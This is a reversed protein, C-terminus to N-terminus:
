WYVANELFFRVVHDSQPGDFNIAQGWPTHYRDTFYPGYESLYNGEPGLHNYVVDLVVALENEHCTNILTKLGHPGGYASHPAYLHTGDYGWNNKGPFEAVPMLEVATVGLENKLYDLYSGIATFVGSPTFAGTHLEYLILDRLPLGKWAQDTWSFASPSVIASPGHVGEPQFRSVPDPRTREGDLLYYYRSDPKLGQAVATHLGDTHRQMAVTSREPSICQVAIEKVRPAWVSFWISGDARLTAGRQLHWSMAGGM